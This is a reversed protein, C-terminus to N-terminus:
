AELVPCKGAELVPCKGPQGRVWSGTSGPVWWPRLFRVSACANEPPVSPRADLAKPLRDHSITTAACAANQANEHTRHEHNKNASGYQHSGSVEALFAWAEGNLHRFLQVRATDNAPLISHVAYDIQDPQDHDDHGHKGEDAKM